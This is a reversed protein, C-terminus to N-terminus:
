WAWPYSFEHLVPIDDLLNKLSWGIVIVHKLMELIQILADSPISRSHPSPFFSM